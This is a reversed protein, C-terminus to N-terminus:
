ARMTPRQAPLRAGVDTAGPTVFNVTAGAATAAGVLIDATDAIVPPTTDQITVTFTDSVSNGSDDSAVCTVDTATPGPPVFAAISGPAFPSTGGGSAPITCDIEVDSDIEDTATPLTFNVITGDLSLRELVLDAPTTGFAPSNGDVVDVGFEITGTAQNEGTASCALESPGLGLAAFDGLAVPNSLSASDCSVSPPPEFEGAPTVTILDSPLVAGVEGQANKAATLVVPFDATNVTLLPPINNQIAQELGPNLSVEYTNAAQSTLVYSIGGDALEPAIL